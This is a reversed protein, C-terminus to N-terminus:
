AVVGESFTDYPVFVFDQQWCSRLERPDYEVVQVVRWFSTETCPHKDPCPHLLHDMLPASLTGYALLRFRFPDLVRSEQLRQWCRFSSPLNYGHVEYFSEWSGVM